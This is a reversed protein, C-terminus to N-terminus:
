AIVQWRHGYKLLNWTKCPHCITEFSILGKLLLLAVVLIALQIYICM